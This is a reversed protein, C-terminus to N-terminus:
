AVKSSESLCFVEKPTLGNLSAHPRQQNYFDVFESVKGQISKLSKGNLDNSRVFGLLIRHFREVKGNHAPTRPKILHHKINKNALTTEFAAYREKGKRKANSRSIFLYTFEVGNDTQVLKPQGVECFLKHLGECAEHGSKELCVHVSSLRSHCDVATVAYVNNGNEDEIKLGVTDMQVRDLANKSAYRKTHPNKKVRRYHNTIGERRFINDITSHSVKNGTQKEYFHSVIRGGTNGTQKRVECLQKVVEQDIRRPSLRSGRPKNKLVNLDYQNDRLKRLWAYFTKRCLGHLICGQSISRAQMVALLLGAKKRIEQERIRSLNKKVKLITLSYDTM